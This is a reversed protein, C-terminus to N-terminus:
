YVFSPKIGWGLFLILNAFHSLLSATILEVITGLANLIHLLHLPFYFLYKAALSALLILHPLQFSSM